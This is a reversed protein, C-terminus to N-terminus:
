TIQHKMLATQVKFGDVLHLMAQMLMPVDIIQSASEM